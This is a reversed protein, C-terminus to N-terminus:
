VKLAIQELLKKQLIYQITSAIVNRCQCWKLHQSPSKAVTAGNISMNQHGCIIISFNFLLYITFSFQLLNVIGKFSFYIGLLVTQDNNTSASWSCPKFKHEGDQCWILQNHLRFLIIVDPSTTWRHADRTSLIYFRRWSGETFELKKSCPSTMRSRHEVEWIMYLHSWEQLTKVVVQGDNQSVAVALM